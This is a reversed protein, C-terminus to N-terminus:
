TVTPTKKVDILIMINVSVHRIYTRVNNQVWM